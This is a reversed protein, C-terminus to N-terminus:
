VRYESPADRIRQQYENLGISAGNHGHSQVWFPFNSVDFLKDGWLQAHGGLLNAQASM